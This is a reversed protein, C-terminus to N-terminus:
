HGYLSHTLKAVFQSCCSGVAPSSLCFYLFWSLCVMIWVSSYRSILGSLMQFAAKQVFPTAAILPIHGAHKGGSAQYLCLQYRSHLFVVLLIIADGANTSGSVSSTIHSSCPVWCSCCCHGSVWDQLNCCTCSDLVVFRLNTEKCWCTICVIHYSSSAVSWVQWETLSQWQSIRWELVKYKSGKKNM